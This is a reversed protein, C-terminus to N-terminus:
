IGRRMTAIQRFPARFGGLLTNRLTAVSALVSVPIKQSEEPGQSGLRPSKSSNSVKGALKEMPSQTYRHPPCCTLLSLLFDALYNALFDDFMAFLPNTVEPRWTLGISIGANQHFDHLTKRDRDYKLYPTPFAKSWLAIPAVSEQVRNASRFASRIDPLCTSM